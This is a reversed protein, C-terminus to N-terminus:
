LINRAVTKSGVVYSEKSSILKIQKPYERCKRSMFPERGGNEATTKLETYPLHAATNRRAVASCKM